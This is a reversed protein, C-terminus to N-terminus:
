FVQNLLFFQFVPSNKELFLAVINAKLSASLLELSPFTARWQPHSLFSFAINFQPFNLNSMFTHSSTFAFFGSGLSDGKELPLSLKLSKLLSLVELVSLQLSSTFCVYALFVKSARLCSVLSFLRKLHIRSCNDIM